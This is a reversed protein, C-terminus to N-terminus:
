LKIAISGDILPSLLCWLREQCRKYICTRKSRAKFASLRAKTAGWSAPAESDWDLSCAFVDGNTPCIIPATHPYVFSSNLSLHKWSCISLGPSTPSMSSSTQRKRHANHTSTIRSWHLDTEMDDMGSIESRLIWRLSLSRWSSPSLAYLRTWSDHTKACIAPM